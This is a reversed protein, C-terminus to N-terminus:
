TSDPLRIVVLNRKIASLPLHVTLLEYPIAGLAQVEERVKPGKNLILMGGSRVIHASKRIFESTDFLARTVAVDVPLDLDRSTKIDEIRKGIVVVDKLDLQQLINRLFICKKVTPEILYMETEPRIIKLPIGPFGAGSGVDAVRLKGAPMAHLYLLSDLFHKIVIDEDNKLGTLNYARSWKKLGSLYMLFAHMQSDEPTVGLEGLGERLLDEPKIRHM